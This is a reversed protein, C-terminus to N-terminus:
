AGGMKEKARRVHRYDGFGPDYVTPMDFAPLSVRINRTLPGVTYVSCLLLAAINCSFHLPTELPARAHRM